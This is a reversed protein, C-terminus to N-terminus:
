PSDLLNFLVVDNCGSFSPFTGGQSPISLEGFPIGNDPAAGLPITTNLTLEAPLAVAQPVPVPAAITYLSVSLLVIFSSLRTM